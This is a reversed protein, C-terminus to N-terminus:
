RQAIEAEAQRRLEEQEMTIQRYRQSIEEPSLGSTVLEDLESKLLKMRTQRVAGALELRAAEIESAPEAAIEAILPEFDSGGIRLHEALLAFNAQPGMIKSAAILQNLMAGGDPAFHLIAVLASEELEAGLAPHAVLLRMIQRELDVPPTRKSRAPAMRVRSIPKVLEFLSEIEGPTTHTLQALNRVIQLRLASPPMAQLLPKADFQARARGEAATLDNEATVENILFQSLPMANRVQQEFAEAGSERIYSDPDHEAPLFLFQITKNDSAHPLSAELARRAARRGAADGDFSFIV